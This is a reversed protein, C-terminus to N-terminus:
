PLDYKCGECGACRVRQVAAHEIQAISAPSVEGVYSVRAYTGLKAIARAEAVSNALVVVDDYTTSNHVSYANM